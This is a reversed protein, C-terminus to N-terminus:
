SQPPQVARRSLWREFSTQSEGSPRGMVVGDVSLDEDLDPWHIGEGRAILKWHSREAPTGHLLRPYWALPATIRQGDTLTIVLENDTVEVHQATPRQLASVLQSM